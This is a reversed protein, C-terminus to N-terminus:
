RSDLSQRPYNTFLSEITSKITVPCCKTSFTISTVTAKQLIWEGLRQAFNTWWKILTKLLYRVDVRKQSGCLKQHCLDGYFAMDFCIPIVGFRSLQNHLDFMSINTSIATTRITRSRTKIKKKYFKSMQHKIWLHSILLFIQIKM